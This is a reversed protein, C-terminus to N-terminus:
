HSSLNWQQHSGGFLGGISPIPEMETGKDTLKRNGVNIVNSM